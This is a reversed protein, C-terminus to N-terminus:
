SPKLLSQINPELTISVGREMESLPAEIKEQLYIRCVSWNLYFSPSKEILAKQNM